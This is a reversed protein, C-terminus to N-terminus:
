KSRRTTAEPEVKKTTTTVGPTAEPEIKKTTTTVGPTAEPDTNKTTTTVGPEVKETTTTVGPTAEPETKKTTTTVGPEVKETTTTVGPEVKETTTTVVPEIKKTTTTVGTIAEPVTKETTTTVSPEVKKTTTTVEPKEPSTTTTVDISCLKRGIEEVSQSTMASPNVDIVLTHPEEALMERKLQLKTVDDDPVDTAMVVVAFTRYKRVGEGSHITDTVLDLAPALYVKGHTTTPTTMTISEILHRAMKPTESQRLSVLTKPGSSFQIISFRTRTPQVDMKQIIERIVSKVTAIKNASSTLRRDLLFVIDMPKSCFLQSPPLETVPIKPQRTVVDIETNQCVDKWLIAAVQKAKVILNKLRKAKVFKGINSLRRDGIFHADDTVVSIVEVGNKLVGELKEVSLLREKKPKRREVFIVVM